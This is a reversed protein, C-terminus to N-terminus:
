DEIVMIKKIIRWIITNSLNQYIKQKFYDTLYKIKDSDM